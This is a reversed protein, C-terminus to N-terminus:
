RTLVVHVSVSVVRCSFVDLWWAVLGAASFLIFLGVYLMIMGYSLVVPLM